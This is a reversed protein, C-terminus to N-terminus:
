LTNSNTKVGQLVATHFKEQSPCFPTNGAEQRMEGQDRAGAEDPFGWGPRLDRTSAKYPIYCFSKCFTGWPLGLLGGLASEAVAARACKATGRPCPDSRRGGGSSAPPPPDARWRTEQAAALTLADRSRDELLSANNRDWNAGVYPVTATLVAGGTAAAVAKAAGDTVESWVQLSLPRPEQLSFGREFSYAAASRLNTAAKRSDEARHVDSAYRRYLGRWTGLVVDEALLPAAATNKKKHFMLM